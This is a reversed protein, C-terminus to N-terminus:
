LEAWIGEIFAKTKKAEETIEEVTEGGCCEVWNPGDYGVDRLTAYIRAFDVVGTGPTIMVEGQIGGREDKICTCTVHEAINTALDASITAVANGSDLDGQQRLSVPVMAKLSARPLESHTQLYQRLAGACMALVADNFTGGFARAVARIREFPWSQAVFRRASDIPTNLSSRPM